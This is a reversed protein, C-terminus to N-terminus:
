FKPIFETNIHGCESCKYTPIPVYSDKPAGTILKSVKRIYVVDVFTDNGCGEAECVISTSNKRIDINMNPQEM